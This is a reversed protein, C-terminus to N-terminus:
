LSDLWMGAFIAGFVGTTAGYNFTLSLTDKPEFERIRGGIVGSGRSAM